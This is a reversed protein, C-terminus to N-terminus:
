RQGFVVKDRGGVDAMTTATASDEEGRRWVRGGNGHEFRKKAAKEEVAMSREDVAAM